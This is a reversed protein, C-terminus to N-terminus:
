ALPGVCPRSQRYSRPEVKLPSCSPTPSAAMASLTKCETFYSEIWMVKVAPRVSCISLSAMKSMTAGALGSLNVICLLRDKLVARVESEMLIRKKKCWKWLGQNMSRFRQSNLAVCVLMILSYGVLRERLIVRASKSREPFTLCGTLM